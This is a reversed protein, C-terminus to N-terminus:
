RVLGALHLLWIFVGIEVFFLGLGIPTGWGYWALSSKIGLRAAYAGIEDKEKEQEM